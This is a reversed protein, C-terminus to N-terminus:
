RNSAWRIARRADGLREAVAGAFAGDPGLDALRYLPAPGGHHGAMLLLLSAALAGVVWRGVRSRRSTALLSFGAVFSALLLGLMLWPLVDGSFVRTWTQLSVIRETAALVDLDPM